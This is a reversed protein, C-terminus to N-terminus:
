PNLTIAIRYFSQQGGGIEVRVEEFDDDISTITVKDSDPTLTTWAGGLSSVQKITYQLDAASKRRPFVLSPSGEPDMEVKPLREAGGPKLPHMGFAYEILNSHGDGDPDLAPDTVSPDNAARLFVESKWDEYSDGALDEVFAATVSRDASMTVTTSAASPDAIGDGTWRDFRYGAAAIAEISAETGDAYDGAGIVSGAAEPAANMVLSWIVDSVSFTNSSGSAGSGPETASIQVNGSQDVRVTHGSLVGDIFTATTGGGIALPVTGALEVPDNFSTLPEGSADLARITVTFSQGTVQDDIPDFAFSALSGSPSFVVDSADAVVLGGGYTVTHEFSGSAAGLGLLRISLNLDGSPRANREGNPDLLHDLNFFARNAQPGDGVVCFLPHPLGVAELRVIAGETAAPDQSSFDLLLQRSEGVFANEEATTVAQLPPVSGSNESGDSAFSVPRVYYTTAPSLGHVRLMVLNRGSVEDALDRSKQRADFDPNLSREGVRLPFLEVRVEGDLSQTGSADAYVEVGPVSSESTQWVLDLSFPTVNGAEFHDITVVQMSVSALLFAFLQFLPAYSHRATM